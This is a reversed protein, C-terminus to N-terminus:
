YATSLQMRSACSMHARAAEGVRQQSQQLALGVPEDFKRGDIVGIAHLPTSAARTESYLKCCVSGLMSHTICEASKCRHQVTCRLLM